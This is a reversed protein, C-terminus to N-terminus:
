IKCFSLFRDINYIYRPIIIFNFGWRRSM